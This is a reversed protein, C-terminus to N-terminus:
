QTFKVILYINCACQLNKCELKLKDDPLEGGGFGIDFVSRVDSIHLSTKIPIKMKLNKDNKNLLTGNNLTSLTQQKM